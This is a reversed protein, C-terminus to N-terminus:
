IKQNFALIILKPKVIKKIEDISFYVQKKHSFIYLTNNKLIFELNEDSDRALKKALALIFNLWSLIHNNPLLDKYHEIIYPTIKKGNTKLLIAILAIQTHSFGFHLGNLVMNAGHENAFYFNLKEGIHSLKAANLLIQKYKYDMKHEPLFVDFLKDTFHVCKSNYNINFRDQLSKLSPNFNPPFKANFKSYELTENKIKIYKGFLSSLFAGERVGVASTIINKAKLYKTLALFIMCGEKITDFRDKKINFDMLNKANLIKEIHNKEKDLSYCFNHIMKLPYSNKKMISNSIARLSGGIAIIHENQFKKPVQELSKQIFLELANFKKRDYFIEKLRVTGLDLSICDIIKGDKILCLETSGGGIDITTANKIDSLLNLAALGGLFSETKGNICKINLGVNHSIRKIFDKSNPADRLASTGVAIIKRCKEKLAKEKFFKLAEEAKQMAHEQLIKDNNYANEGLRVKKKYENCIFFGYRSTREFVVMRVSNSGLDIVATKKAM